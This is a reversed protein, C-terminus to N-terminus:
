GSTVRWENSAVEQDALLRHELHVLGVPDPQHQHPRHSPRQRLRPGRDPHEVYNNILYDNCQIQLQARKEPNLEKKLQDVLADYKPDSFRDYNTGNWGNSKQAIQATTFGEFFVQADPCCRASRSCRWTGSSAPQPMRTTPQGFFVGADANKIDMSIGAQQFAHKIVQEEKERVANVTTTFVFKMQVGNKARIGDAGKVWGATM